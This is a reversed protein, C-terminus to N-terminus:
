SSFRLTRGILLSTWLIVILIQQNEGYIVIIKLFITMFIILFVIFLFEILFRKKMLFDIKDYFSRDENFEVKFVSMDDSKNMFGETNQLSISKNNNSQQFSQFIVSKENKELNEYFKPTKRYIDSKDHFDNSITHTKLEEFSFNSIKSASLSRTYELLTEPTKCNMNLFGKKQM